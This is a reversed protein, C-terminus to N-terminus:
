LLGYRSKQSSLLEFLFDIGMIIRCYIFNFTNATLYVYDLLAKSCRLINPLKDKISITNIKTVIHVNSDVILVFNEKFESNNYQVAIAKMTKQVNVM